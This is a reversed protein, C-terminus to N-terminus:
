ASKDAVEWFAADEFESNATSDAPPGVLKLFTGTALGTLIAFVFTCVAGLLQCHWQQAQPVPYVVNGQVSPFCVAITVVLSGLLAPMGHLNHVGCSDHLGIASELKAQVRNFGFCSLTGALIGVLLAVAPQVALNSSAGICVGGALTANQIDAASLKKNFLASFVFTALCSATLALVTNVTTLGQKNTGFPATAGNFSPWYIWLFVTGILSFVDSVRSPEAAKTSSPKGLVWAIALGFYAGFLHIFMTGGMDLTATWHVLVYEKNFSYLPVEIVTLLAAQTPTIKGILAGFSILVAAAAFDGQLLANIDLQVPPWYGTADPGGIVIEPYDANNSVSAFFRGTLICWQISIATICFTLGVASLGFNGMFTMLYGFGVLMMITVHLFFIYQVDNFSSDSAPYVVFLAYLVIVVLEFVGVVTAFKKYENNDTFM